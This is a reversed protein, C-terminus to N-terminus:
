TEGNRWNYISGRKDFFFSSTMVKSRFNWRFFDDSFRKFVVTSLAPRVRKALTSVLQGIKQVKEGINEKSLVM